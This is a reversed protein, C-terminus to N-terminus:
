RSPSVAASRKNPDRGPRCAPVPLRLYGDAGLSLEEVREDIAGSASCSYGHIPAASLSREASRDGHLKPLDRDLVIVDYRARPAGSHRRAISLSALDVAM